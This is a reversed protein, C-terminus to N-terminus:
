LGTIIYVIQSELYLYIKDCHFNDHCLIACISKHALIQPDIM